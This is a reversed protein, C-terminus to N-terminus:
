KPRMIFRDHISSVVRVVDKSNVVFAINLESSGQAIMIINVGADAVTGFVKAAIGKAGRMGAGVVTVISVDKIASFSKMVSSPLRGALLELSKDMDSEAIVFSLSSESSGSIMLININAEGLTSFVRGSINPTEAMGVGELTLIVIHKAIAVAKVVHDVKRQTKVILTGGCSPNFTNKVLVPIKSAMAPEIMKSHIVKAGYYALDMAEAYSLTPILKAEPVLKPDTTLIGDVDTWIQVEKVNLYKGLLSATYDSGGRGLTTIRAKEDGAIFGAVVPTVKPLLKGLKEIVQKQSKSHLPRARGFCSDTVIGAEFGTLPVSKIGASNLAGSMVLINLREGFSMIYDLSKASLDELYGVGLLAVRLHAILDLSQSLVEGRLKKDTVAIMIAQRQQMSLERCFVDVERDVVSNPLDVVSKAVQILRDTVGSMASVVVVKAPSREAKVLKAVNVIREGNAVSTGGFKMVVAM